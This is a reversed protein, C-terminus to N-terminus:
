STTQATASSALTGRNLAQPLLSLVNVGEGPLLLSLYMYCFFGRMLVLAFEFLILDGSNEGRM